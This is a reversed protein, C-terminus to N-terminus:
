PADRHMMAALWGTRRVGDNEMGFLFVESRSGMGLRGGEVKRIRMEEGDMRMRMPKMAMMAERRGMMSSMRGMIRGEEMETVLFVSIIGGIGGTM